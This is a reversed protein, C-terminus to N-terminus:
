ACTAARRRGSATSSKLPRSSWINRRICVEGSTASFRDKSIFAWRGLRRRVRRQQVVNRAAEIADALRELAACTADLPAAVTTPFYGTVGHTALFKGLRPLESPSARMVDLGAGGHMHIDFFGPALVADGFDVIPRTASFTRNGSRSSVESIRGDEVVLLPDSIEEIPTFLRRATFVTKMLDSRSLKDYGCAPKVVVRRALCALLADCLWSTRDCSETLRTDAHRVFAIIKHYNLLKRLRPMEQARRVIDPLPEAQYLM